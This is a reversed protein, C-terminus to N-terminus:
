KIAYYDDLLNKVIVMQYFLLLFKVVNGWLDGPMVAIMLSPFMVLFMALISKDKGKTKDTMM